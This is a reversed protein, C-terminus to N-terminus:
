CSHIQVLEREMWESVQRNLEDPSLGLGDIPPGIRVQITGPHKLLSRRSWFDGANHAIPIISHGSESALLAGSVGYRRRESPALRTGEPFFNLTRGQALQDRGERLVQNVARHGASRNIAIPKLTAIAWGVIPIWLLERKLVWTPKTPLLFSLFTEWTSEHRWFLIGGTKPLHSLGTVQYDLGCLWSLAKLEFSACARGVAFRFRELPPLGLTLAMPVAFLTISLGMLLTFLVSRTILSIRM